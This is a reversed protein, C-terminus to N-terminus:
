LTCLQPDIPKCTTLPSLVTQTGDFLPLTNEGKNFLLYMKNFKDLPHNWQSVVCQDRHQPHQPEQGPRWLYWQAPFSAIHSMYLWVNILLYPQLLTPVCIM